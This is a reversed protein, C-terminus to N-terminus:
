LKKRWQKYTKDQLVAIKADWDGTIDGSDILEMFIKEMTAEDVRNKGIFFRIDAVGEAPNERRAQGLFDIFRKGIEISNM